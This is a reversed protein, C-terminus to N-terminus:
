KLSDRIALILYELLADFSAESPYTKAKSWAKSLGENGADKIQKELVLFDTEDDITTFTQLVLALKGAKDIQTTMGKSQDQYKSAEAQATGLDANAKELDTRTQTLEANLKENESQLAAYDAQLKAHDNQLAALQQQTTTLENSLDYTWYGVWAIAALLLLALVGLVLYALNFKSHKKEAPRPPSAEVGEDAPLTSPQAKESAPPLEQTALPQPQEEEKEPSLPDPQM